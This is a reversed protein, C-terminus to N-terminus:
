RRQTSRPSRNKDIVAVIILVFALLRLTYIYPHHEAHPDTLALLSWNAGLLWFAAAFFAFLRDHSERWFRLFFGSVTIAGAACTGQFFITLADNM